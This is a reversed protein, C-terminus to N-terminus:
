MRHVDYIGVLESESQMYGTRARENTKKILYLFHTHYLIIRKCKLCVLSSVLEVLIAYLDIKMLTDYFQMAANYCVRFWKEMSM